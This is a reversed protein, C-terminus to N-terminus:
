AGRQMFALRRSVLSALEREDMGQSPYVNFTQGAGSSGGMKTALEHIIAKDRQSLGNSDLPEVRENRGAEGIIANVGGPTAKVVGGQALLPINPTDISFGKGAIHLKKTIWTEPIKVELGFDNWHQILWNIVGKFSNKIGDWMGKAKEAIKSGVGGIWNFITEFFDTIKNWAWKLGSVLPDWVKKIVGWIFGFVKKVVGWIDMFVTSVITWIFKFIKVWVSVVFKIYAWILGFVFKVVGWVANFIGSVIGFFFKFIASWAGVVFKIYNWVLGFVFKIAAYIANWIAGVFAVTKQIIPVIFQVLKLVIPSVINFIKTMIPLIFQIVKMIAIAVFSIIGVIAGIVIKMVNLSRYAFMMIIPLIAKILKAAFTLVPVLYKFLAVATKYINIGVLVLMGFIPKFGKIFAQAYKLGETVMAKVLDWIASFLPAAIKIATAIGKILFALVKAVILIYKVLYDKIIPVVKKALFDGFTKFMSTAKKGHGSVKGFHIGVDELAKRVIDFAQKLAGKVANVLDSISKRFAESKKYAMVVAAILAAIAVVILIIWGVAIQLGTWVWIMEQIKRILFMFKGAVMIVKGALAKFVFSAIMWISGIALTVGHIAAAFLFIKQFIENSFLKIIYDLAKSIVTFFMKIGGGETLKAIAIAIKTFVTGILAGDGTLTKAMGALIMPIPKVAEWFQKVGPNGGLEFLAKIVEGIFGGMAIFNDSIADFKKQLEGTRKGEDAFAKFKDMAGGFAGFIKLGADKAAGGFSSFASFMKKFVGGIFAAIKGAEIFTRSLEGTKNKLKITNGWAKATKEIWDTFVLIVPGAADLINLFAEAVAVLANGLNQMVRINTKGFVRNFIKLNEAKTLMFSLQKAINGIVGGMATLIPKLVPFLNKVINDIAVTLPGFLEKGAAARLKLFEPRLKAMHLVFARAEKSLDKLADNISTTASSSKKAADELARQLARQADMIDQANDREQKARDAEAQGLDQKASLVEKTGEIGTKAAYDQAAKLDNAKDTTKRYNLEAEKFALEAERRARSDVPVDQTRLLSERARELEIAAKSQALAADEADFGLQQLSEAGDKYAQNLAIQAKRVKDNAAAMTEATKQYVQALRRRADEIARQNAASQGADGGSGTKAKTIASIGKMVGGFAIKATVAAQAVASLIGPLVVLAPTAAGLASVMSFLGFVLDSVASAAGALAPGAIYSARILGNFADKAQLAEQKFKAFPGGRGNGRGIGRSLERGIDKGLRGVDNKIDHLAKEIEKKFLSTDARIIIHAEGVIAM